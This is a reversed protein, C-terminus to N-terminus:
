DVKDRSSTGNWWKDFLFLHEVWGIDFFLEIGGNIWKFFFSVKWEAMPRGRTQFETRWWEEQTYEYWLEKGFRQIGLAASPRAMTRQMVAMCSRKREAEGKLHGGEMKAMTRM